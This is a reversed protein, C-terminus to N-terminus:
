STPAKRRLVRESWIPGAACGVLFAALVANAPVRLCFDVASHAAIALIGATVPTVHVWRTWGPGWREGSGTLTLALLALMALLGPPGAEILSQLWDNHAHHWVHDVEPPRYADFAEEFTGLGTGLTPYDAVMAGGARWVRARLDLTSIRTGQSLFREGPARVDQVLLWVTPVALLLLIGTAWMRRTRTWQWLAVAGTAILAAALGGRSYSLVVGIWIMGAALAGAIRLLGSPESLAIIRARWTAGQEPRGVALGLALPLAMALFGAFHSRNIFSGTAEDLYLTKVYGFIQQRGSLYEASGYLAQFAASVSVALMAQKMQSRTRIAM